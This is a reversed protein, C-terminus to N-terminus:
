KKTEKLFKFSDESIYIILEIWDFNIENQGDSSPRLVFSSLGAYGSILNRIRAYFEGESIHQPEENWKAKAIM